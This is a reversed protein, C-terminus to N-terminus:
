LLDPQHAEVLSLAQEPATAKGVVDTGIRELVQEVADLWLPHPDLLVATRRPPSTMRFPRREHISTCTSEHNM